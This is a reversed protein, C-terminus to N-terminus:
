AVKAREEEIHWACYHHYDKGVLVSGWAAYGCTECDRYVPCVCEPPLWIAKKWWPLKVFVRRSVALVATGEYGWLKTGVWQPHDLIMVRSGPRLSSTM